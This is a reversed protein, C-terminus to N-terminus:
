ELVEMQGSIILENKSSYTRYTKNGDVIVAARSLRVVDQRGKPLNLRAKGLRMQGKVIVPKGIYPVQAARITVFKDTVFLPVKEKHGWLSWFLAEDKPMASPNEPDQLEIAVVEHTQDQPDMVELIRAVGRWEGSLVPAKMFLPFTCGGFGFCCCALIAFRAKSSISFWRPRWMGPFQAM